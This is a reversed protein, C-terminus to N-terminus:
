SVSCAPILAGLVIPLLATFMLYGRDAAIVRLYRRALTSLQRIGGALM